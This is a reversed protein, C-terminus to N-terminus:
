RHSRAAQKIALLSEVERPRLPRVQGESLGRIHLPGIAVRRLTMVTRGVCQFMRRVQRNRGEVLTVRVHVTERGGILEFKAPRTM